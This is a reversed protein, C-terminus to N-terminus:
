IVFSSYLRVLSFWLNRGVELVRAAELFFTTCKFISPHAAFGLLAKLEMLM